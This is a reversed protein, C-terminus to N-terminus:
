RGLWTKLTRMGEDAALLDRLFQQFGPKRDCRAIRHIERATLPLGYPMLNLNCARARAVLWDELRPSVEVVQKHVERAHVLFHLGHANKTEHYNRLEAPTNGSAPDADLLGVVEERAERLRNLVNGKCGEHFLDRPSVGLTRLLAADNYCEVLVRM